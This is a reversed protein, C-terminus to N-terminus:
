NPHDIPASRCQCRWSRAFRRRARGTRRSHTQIKPQPAHTSLGFSLVSLRSPQTRLQEYLATTQASPEICWDDALIKRCRVYQAMAASRQGSLALVRILQYHAEELWPDLAVCRQLYHVAAAYAGRAEAEEALTGLAALAQRHLREKIMLVWEEFVISRSLPSGHLLAGRYLAVAERLRVICAACTELRDHVHQECAAILGAFRVVDVSLEAAPNLQVTQHTSLVFPLAAAPRDIAHRLRSLVHRLNARAAAEAHDPWLLDALTGRTPPRRQEVALYALLARVQDSEFATVPQGDRTVHFGGFLSISLCAV